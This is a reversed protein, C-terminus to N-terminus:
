DCLSHIYTALNLATRILQPHPQFQQDFKGEGGLATIADCVTHFEDDPIQKRRGLKKRTEEALALASTRQNYADQAEDPRQSGSTIEIFRALADIARM